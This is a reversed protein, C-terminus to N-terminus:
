GYGVVLLIVYKILYSLRKFLLLFERLRKTDTLFMRKQETDYKYKPRNSRYNVDYIVHSSPNLEDLFMSQTYEIFRGRDLVAPTISSVYTSKPQNNNWLRRKWAPKVLLEDINEM